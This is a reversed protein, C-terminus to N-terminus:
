TDHLTCCHMCCIREVAVTADILSEYRWESGHEIETLPRECTGLNKLLRYLCPTAVPLLERKRSRSWQCGAHLTQFWREMHLM